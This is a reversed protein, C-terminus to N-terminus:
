KKLTPFLNCKVLTERGSGRDRMEKGREGLYERARGYEKASLLHSSSNSLLYDSRKGEKISLLRRRKGYNMAVM